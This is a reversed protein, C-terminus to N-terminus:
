EEIDSQPRGPMELAKQHKTCKRIRKGLNRIHGEANRLANGASQLAAELLDHVSEQVM